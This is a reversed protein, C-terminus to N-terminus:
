CNAAEEINEADAICLRFERTRAAGDIEANREADEVCDEVSQGLLEEESLNETEIGVEQLAQTSLELIKQCSAEASPARFFAFWVIVGILVLAAVTSGTIILVKKMNNKTLSILSAKTLQKYKLNPLKEFSV